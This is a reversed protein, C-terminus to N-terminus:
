YLGRASIAYPDQSLGPLLQKNRGALIQGLIGSSSLDMGGMGGGGMPSAGGMGGLFNGLLQKPKREGSLAGMGAKGAGALLYPALAALFQIM